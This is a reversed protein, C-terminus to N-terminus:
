VPQLLERHNHTKRWSYRLTQICLIVLPVAFKTFFTKCKPHIGLNELVLVWERLRQTPRPNGKNWSFVSMEEGFLLINKHIFYLAVSPRQGTTKIYKSEGEWGCLSSIEITATSYWEEHNYLRVSISYSLKGRKKVKIETPKWWFKNIICPAMWNESNDTWYNTEFDRKQNGLICAIFLSCWSVM